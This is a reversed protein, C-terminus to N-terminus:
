KSHIHEDLNKDSVKLLFSEAFSNSRNILAEVEELSADDLIVGSQLLVDWGFRTRISLSLPTWQFQPHIRINKTKVGADLLCEITARRNGDYIKKKEDAYSAAYRSPAVQSTVFLDEGTIACFLPTGITSLKDLDSIRGKEEILWKCIHYFSLAAAFHLTETNSLDVENDMINNQTWYRSWCIFNGTKSPDFLIEVLDLLGEDARHALSHDIWYTSCYRYFSYENFFEERQEIGTWEIERFDEFLLYTLCLKALPLNEKGPFIKYRAYPSRPGSGDIALLFEEVTFHALELRDGDPTRRVLSSCWKLIGEEDPMADHDLKTDGESISVAQLLEKTSLPEESCVIWTLVRQVLKQTDSSSANVRDLIREYTAFLTPPLSNLGRRIAKDTNLECLYDLQCAVWRFMGEAGDVLRDMIEKKLDPDRTRLLRKRSRSEIESAVYLKLDSSTAAISIKEYYQLHVEIDTELRSTFLTKINFGDANLIALLEVVKSRDNGCEDLADIIIMVEDFFTSLSQILLCFDEPAVSPGTTPGSERYHNSYFKEVAGLCRPNQLALQRVLAGLIVMPDHTKPDKYDCYFYALGNAHETQNSAAQIISSALVTKGAGPIGYLWLKANSTALWHKFQHGETFWVGTGPQRLKIAVNQHSSPDFPGITDLMRKRENSLLTLTQEARQARINERIEAIDEGQAKQHSLNEILTNMGDAALALSLTSKQNAVEAILGKTEASSFPWVLTRGLTSAKQRLPSKTEDVQNPDAKDLRDKIKELLKHCTHIHQSQMTSDFAEDQYRAAVLRLSNLIGFLDTIEELLKKVEKSAGRAEKIYKYSRGAIMDTISILGAISASLSLPDM